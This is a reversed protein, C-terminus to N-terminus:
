RSGRRGSAAGAIIAALRDLIVERDYHASVHARGARGRAARDRDIRCADIARALDAADGARAIYGAGADRVISAALGDASVIVPRAAAMTELLKTPLSADYMAGRRLMVLGADAAALTAPVQPAPVAGHFDVQAGYLGSGAAALAAKEVGEGVIRIRTAPDVLRAAELLTGVGQALGVTGVYVITFADEWGLRARATVSDAAPDFRGLDVGNPLLQVRGAASPKCSLLEVLGPSVTTIAAAGRYALGEVAFALRRGARSQLYGM